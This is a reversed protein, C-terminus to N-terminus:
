IYRNYEKIRDIIMKMIYIFVTFMGTVFIMQGKFGVDFSALQQVLTIAVLIGLVVVATFLLMVLTFILEVVKHLSM